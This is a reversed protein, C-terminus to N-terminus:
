FALGVVRLRCIRFESGRVIVNKLSILSCKWGWVCVCVGSLRTLQPRDWMSLDLALNGHDILVTLDSAWWLGKKDEKTQILLVQCHHNLLCPPLSNGNRDTRHAWLWTRGCQAGLLHGSWDLGGSSNSLALSLLPGWVAPSGPLGNGGGRYISLQQTTLGSSNSSGELFEMSIKCIFTFDQRKIDLCSHWCPLDSASASTCPAPKSDM